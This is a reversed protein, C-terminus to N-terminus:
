SAGAADSPALSAALEDEVQAFTTKASEAMTGVAAISELMRGRAIAWDDAFATVAQQVRPSGIGEYSCDGGASSLDSHLTQLDRALVALVELEIKMDPAM